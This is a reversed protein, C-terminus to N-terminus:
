WFDNCSCFGDKFHHFRNSDRVIVEKNMCKTVLKIFRHCDVCIRINKMIRISDQSPSANMLGYVLALKESHWYLQEEKQGQEIEHLVLRTEPDYGIAKVKVLLLRLEAMIAKIEPHRHGGVAFEHVRNGIEIWSLGAVKKVGLEKMGKWYPAAEAFSGQESYMSSIIVYGASREPAVAVLRQAAREAMTLDGYKRCAGLLGSWVVADPEMPMREVLEEAEVLRGARGLVDVMCAYHDLEPEVGHEGAMTDFVAKGDEVLGSHSCASLLGVFTASDPAVDMAAFAKLAAQGRGHLSYAKIMTNWSVLDRAPMEGFLKEASGVSGCRAYAHVLSNGLVIDGALGSRMALGHLASPHRDASSSACAKAMASFTYRDPSLGERRLGAFLMAAQHHGPKRSQSGGDDGAVAAIISTWSVLDRSRAESFLEYLEEPEGGILSCAKLLATAVKAESILGTKTAVAQVAHCQVAASCSSAVVILTCCDCPVGERLMMAFLSLAQRGEAGSIISNWTISNRQPMAVFVSWAEDESYAAVLANGVAVCASLGTKCALAHAQSVFLRDGDGASAAIAASVAYENPIHTRLMATFLRRCDHRRNAHALGTLLATWSVLNRHPMEDFLQQALDLRQCKCYMNLIHNALFVSSSSSNSSSSSSSSSSLIQAHLARGLALLRHSACGRLLEAYVPITPPSRVTSLAEAIRGSECLRRIRAAAGEM